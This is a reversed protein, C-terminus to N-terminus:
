FLTTFFQCNTPLPGRGGAAAPTGYWPVVPVGTLGASFSLYGIGTLLVFKVLLSCTQGYFASM